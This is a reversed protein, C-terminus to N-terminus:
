NIHLEYFQTVTFSQQHGPVVSECLGIRLVPIAGLLMFAALCPDEYRCISTLDKKYIIVMGM